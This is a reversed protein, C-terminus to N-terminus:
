NGALGGLYDVFVTLTMGTSCDVILRLDNVDTRIAEDGNGTESPDIVFMGSVPTRVGDTQIASNEDATRDFVIFNDRELRVDNITGTSNLVFIRNILDGKPLDSIEYEGAGGATYTFRRRKIIAGTPAPASQVAVASLTPATAGGIDVELALTTIPDPNYNPSSRDLNIPRGTGIKTAEVWGRANLGPRELTIVSIGTSNSGNALGDFEQLDDLQAGTMEQIIRGNAKLRIGTMHDHNFTTGGRTLILSHYSRGIPLACTALSNAAVGNFAPMKRTTKTM